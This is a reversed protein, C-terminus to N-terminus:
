YYMANIMANYARAQQMQQNYRRQAEAAEEAAIRKELKDLLEASRTDGALVAMGFYKRAKDDDRLRGEGEAYCLAIMRCAYGDGQNAAMQWANAADRTSKPFGNSGVLYCDAVKKLANVDGLLADQYTNIWATSTVTSPPQESLTQSCSIMLGATLALALVSLTRKMDTQYITHINFLKHKKGPHKQIFMYAFTLMM